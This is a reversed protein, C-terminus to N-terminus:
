NLSSYFQAIQQRLLNLDPTDPSPAPLADLVQEVQERSMEVRTQNPEPAFLQLTDPTTSNSTALHKRIIAQQDPTLQIVGRQM